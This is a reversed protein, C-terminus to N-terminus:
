QEDITREDKLPPSWAPLAAEQADTTLGRVGHV